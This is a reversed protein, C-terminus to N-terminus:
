LLRTYKKSIYAHPAIQWWEIDTTVQGMIYWRTDKLAHGIVNSNAVLPASHISLEAIPPIISPNGILVYEPLTGPVPPPTIPPPVVVSGLPKIHTGYKTNFTACTGQFRDLDMDPDGGTSGYEAAKKNGDASWQWHTWSYWDYPMTPTDRTTWNAVWLEKGSWFSSRAVKTNWFGASTYIVPKMNTRGLVLTYADQLWKLTAGPDLITYEADLVICLQPRHTSIEESFSQAMLNVDTGINCYWYAGMPLDNTTADKYYIDSAADKWQTGYGLRMIGYQCKTKAIGFNMQGNWKSIDIGQVEWVVTKYLLRRLFTGKYIDAKPLIRKPPLGCTSCGVQTGGCTPCIKAM